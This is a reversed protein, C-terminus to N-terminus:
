DAKVNVGKGGFVMIFVSCRNSERARDKEAPRTFVIAGEGQNGGYGLFNPSLSQNADCRVGFVFREM